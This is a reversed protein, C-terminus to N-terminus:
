TLPPFWQRPDSVDYASHCTAHLRLMCDCQQAAACNHACALYPAQRPCALFKILNAVPCCSPNERVLCQERNLFQSATGPPQLRHGTCTCYQGIGTYWSRGPYPFLYSLGYRLLYSHFCAHDHGVEPSCLHTFPKYTPLIYLYTLHLWPSLQHVFRRLFLFFFSKLKISTATHQIDTCTM